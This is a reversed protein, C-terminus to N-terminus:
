ICCVCVRFLSDFWINHDLILVFSWVHIGTYGTLMSLQIAVILLVVRNMRDYMEVCAGRVECVCVVILAFFGLSIIFVAFFIFFSFFTRVLRDCRMWAFYLRNHLLNNTFFAFTSRRYAHIASLMNSSVSSSRLLVCVREVVFCCKSSNLKNTGSNDDRDM